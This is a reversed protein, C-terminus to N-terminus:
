WSWTHRGPLGVCIPGSFPRANAGPASSTACSSSSGSTVSGSWLSWSRRQDNAWREPSRTEISYSGIACVTRKEAVARKLAARMRRVTLSGSPWVASCIRRSPRRSSPSKLPLAVISRSSKKRKTSAKPVSISAGVQSPVASRLSSPCISKSSKKTKMSRKSSFLARGPM